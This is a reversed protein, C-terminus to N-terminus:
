AYYPLEGDFPKLTFSSKAIARLGNINKRMDKKGCALHVVKDGFRMMVNESNALGYAAARVFNMEGEADEITLTDGAIASTTLTVSEGKAELM